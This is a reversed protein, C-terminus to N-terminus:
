AILVQPKRGSSPDIVINILVPELETAFAKSLAHNLEPITEANFGQVGFAGAIKDYRVGYLLSTPPISCPIFLM